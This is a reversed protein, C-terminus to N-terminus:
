IEVGYHQFSIIKANKIFKLNSIRSNELTLKKHEVELRFIDPNVFYQKTPLYVRLNFIRRQEWYQKSKKRINNSNIRKENVVVIKIHYGYWNPENTKRLDSWFLYSNEKRNFFYEGRILGESLLLNLLTDKQEIYIRISNFEFIQNNGIVIPPIPQKIFDFSDLNIFREQNKKPCNSKEWKLEDAYEIRTYCHKCSSLLLPLIVVLLLKLNINM